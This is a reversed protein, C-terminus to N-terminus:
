RRERKGAGSVKGSCVLPALHEALVDPVLLEELVGAPIEQVHVHTRARDEADIM